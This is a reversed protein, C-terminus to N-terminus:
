TGDGFRLAASFNSAAWLYAERASVNHRKSAASEALTRAEVGAQYYASWASEFDGAQIKSVIALLKGPNGAHYYAHGLSNLAAFGFDPDTFPSAPAATQAPTPSAPAQALSSSAAAAAGIAMFSRRNM